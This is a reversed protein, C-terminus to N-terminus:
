ADNLTALRRELKDFAMSWGAAGPSRAPVGVHTMTMVTRGNTETLEVRVETTTPHSSPMGVDAPTLVHGSEDAMSETYVLRHPEDVELFEGTFWMDLRGGPTDVHMAVLRTGGVRVEMRVVDVSAGEPGYWAAFHSPDTWMQWILSPPADYTREISVADQVDSM